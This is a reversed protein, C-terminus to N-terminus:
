RSIPASIGYCAAANGNAIKAALEPPLRDLLALPDSGHEHPFDSAYM